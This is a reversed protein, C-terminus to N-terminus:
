LSFQYHSSDFKNLLNFTKKEYPHRLFTWFLRKFTGEDLHQLAIPQIGDPGPAKNKGFSNIARKVKEPSFINPLYRM